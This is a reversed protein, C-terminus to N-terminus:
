AKSLECALLKEAEGDLMSFSEDTSPFAGARVDAAYAEVAGRIEDGLSAYRRAFRLRVEPTLGVMDHFVLIQGDCSPGSGIGITPISLKRTILAAAEAAVCELVLAFVGAAELIQARRLLEMAHEEDKGQVVHAGFQHVSQPTFGLHGMVPIGVEVMGAIVDAVIGAGEVKVAQAGAEKLFRGGNRIADSVGSQYSMFPMDAVLLAHSLGRSVARTHHLMEEVTVPLTTDYGLAVNAVSDGVLVLDVGSQDVLRATTYDYATVAAIKRGSDKWQKLTTIRIKPSRM